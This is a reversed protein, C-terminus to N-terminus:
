IPAGPWYGQVPGVEDLRRQSISAADPARVTDPNTSLKFGTEAAYVKGLKRARVYTILLGTFLAALSGYENGAPARKKLEGKVLELLEM